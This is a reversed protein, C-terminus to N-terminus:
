AQKFLNMNLHAPFHIFTVNNPPLEAKKICQNVKHWKIDHRYANMNM